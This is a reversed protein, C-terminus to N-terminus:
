IYQTWSGAIVTEHGRNM